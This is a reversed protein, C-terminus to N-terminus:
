TQVEPTTTMPMVRITSIGKPKRSFKSKLWLWAAQLKTKTPQAGLRPVAYMACLFCLMYGPPIDPLNVSQYYKKIGMIMTAKEDPDTSLWEPGFVRAMLGTSMEFTMGAMQEFRVDAPVLAPPPVPAAGPIDTFDPAIPEGNIAARGIEELKKKKEAAAARSRPLDHKFRVHAGLARDNSAPGWDCEPCFLPGLRSVKPADPLNVGNNPTLIRPVTGESQGALGDATGPMPTEPAMIQSAQAAVEKAHEESQQKQIEVEFQAAKDEGTVEIKEPESDPM